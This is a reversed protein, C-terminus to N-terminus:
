LFCGSGGDLELPGLSLDQGHDVPQHPHPNWDHAMQSQRRLRHMTEAVPPLGFIRHTLFPQEGLRNGKLLRTAERKHELMDGRRQRSLHSSTEQDRHDADTSSVIAIALDADGSVQQAQRLLL